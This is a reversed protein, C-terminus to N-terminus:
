RKRMEGLTLILILPRELRIGPGCKIAVQVEGEQRASRCSRSGGGGERLAASIFAASSRRRELCICFLNGGAISTLDM